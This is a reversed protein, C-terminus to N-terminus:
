VFLLMSLDVSLRLLNWVFSMYCCVFMGVGGNLVIICLLLRVVCVVLMMVFSLRGSNMFGVFLFEFMVISFIFVVLVSGVVSLFVVVCLLIMIMLFFMLFLLLYVVYMVLLRLRGSILIM